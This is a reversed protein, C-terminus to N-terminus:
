LCDLVSEETRAQETAPVLGHLEPMRLRSSQHQDEHSLAPMVARQNRPKRAGLRRGRPSARPRAALVSMATAASSSGRSAARVDGGAPTSTGAM